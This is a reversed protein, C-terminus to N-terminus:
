YLGESTSVFLEPNYTANGFPKSLLPTSLAREGGGERGRLRGYKELVAEFVRNGGEVLVQGTGLRKAGEM